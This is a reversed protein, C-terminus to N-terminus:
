FRNNQKVTKPHEASTIDDCRGKASLHSSIRMRRRKTDRRENNEKQRTRQNTEECTYRKKDWGGEEFRHPSNIRAPM